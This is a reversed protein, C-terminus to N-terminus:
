LTSFSFKKITNLLPKNKSKNKNDPSNELDIDINQSMKIELFDIEFKLSNKTQFYTHSKTM